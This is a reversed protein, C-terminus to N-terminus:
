LVKTLYSTYVYYIQDNLLVQSWGNNGVGTRYLMDGPNIVAAISAADSTGAVTRVNVNATNPTVVETVATYQVNAASQATVPTAGSTDKASAIGDYNFYSVNMDVTGSIGAIAAKETYQWMHYTGTYTSAQTIPFPDTPYQAVWIKFGNLATMNWDRNDTMANQSSYFMPTYGAAAVTQMFRIALVTRVDRGLGYQRSSTKNYNECDYAVPFTIKYKSIINLVFNAEELAEADTVATSYFYVGVKIGVRNAEQLNYRAYVDESLIGTGSTRSGVRIMAFQIGSAAVQNWDILGQFRSVDIGLAASAVENPAAYATIAPTLLPATLPLIIALAMIIAKLKTLKRQLINKMLVEMYNNTM